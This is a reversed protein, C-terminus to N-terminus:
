KFIPEVTPSYMAYASISPAKLKSNTQAAFFYIWVARFHILLMHTESESPLKGSKKSGKRNESHSLYSKIGGSNFYKPHLLQEGQRIHEYQWEEGHCSASICCSKYTKVTTTYGTPLFVLKIQDPHLFLFVLVFM